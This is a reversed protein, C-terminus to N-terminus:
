KVVEKRTSGDSYIVINVGQTPESLLRGHIDYRAFEIASDSSEIEGVAVTNNIEFSGAYQALTAGDGGSAIVEYYYTGADLEGVSLTLSTSSARSVINGNADYASTAVLQTMTEDAYVNVVYSTADATAPIDFIATNAETEVEVTAIEVINTFYSWYTDNAYAEKSGAPVYIICDTPVKRFVYTEGCIPPEPNLSTITTLGTCGSFAYDDISIVSNPIIISTLNTCVSFASNGISTVTNPISVSTLDPCRSFASDGIKTVSNPIIVSTLGFCYYFAYQKIETIDDPIVLKTIETNNLKLRHAYSPWPNPGFEIKCWASLDTINIETLSSCGYFAFYGIATVSNPITVSTLGTCDYFAYAGISTVSNPITVSTLGTCGRFVSQGITTVSNPITVSTLGYCSSFANSGISTVSNGITISTLGICGCFAGQGITTVSNPITVSTLSDCVYFAYDGITTVSNGITISTLGTCQYFVRTPISDVANGVTVSKLVELNEFPSNKHPYSLNRGIYLTDIATNRVWDSGAFTLPTDGDSLDIKSLKSCLSFASSGILTVSNPITVSTLGYCSSFANSGISTVSNPITVSTLGHCNSFVYSGISTVSNPITVSTLGHCGFFANEGISTVTNPITVSTLGDCHKFAYPSISVTGKKIVISTGAPMTGKYNYLMNNIYIVGDPLSNYWPTDYFASSGISTVSSPITVSTLGACSSFASSGISTVSNPITVSTLGTCGSFASSGISTVSSPIAVSTLGNCGSFASSVIVSTGNKLTLNGTPKDGKYGLCYNALYLIGDPQNNYWGTSSFVDHGISTVSNSIIIETLGTCGSFAYIGISTVSNPITVSTLGTCDYFAFAGISTVSNPITVSTLSSCDHFADNGISTVSYIINNYTITEPIIVGGTYENSYENSYDGRYTVAVTKDTSLTYYIGDVKFDHASLSLTTILMAVFLLPIKYNKKM